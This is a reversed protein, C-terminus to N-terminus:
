EVTLKQLVTTDIQKGSLLGILQERFGKALTKYSEIDRQLILIKEKLDKTTNIEKGFLLYDVTVNYRIAIKAIVEMGLNVKGKMAKGYGSKDYNVSQCLSYVTDGHAIRLATIRGNFAPYDLFEKDKLDRIDM